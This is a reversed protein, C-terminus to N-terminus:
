RPELLQRLRRFDQRINWVFYPRFLRGLFRAGELHIFRTQNPGEPRAAMGVQGLRSQMLCWGPRLVVDFNTSFGGPMGARLRLREGSRELIRVGTVTGEFRPTNNELDAIFAWFREFPVDLVIEDVASRPLAVALARMKAVPDLEASPWAYRAVDLAVSANTGTEDGSTSPPEFSM